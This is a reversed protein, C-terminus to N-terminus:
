QRSGPLQAAQDPVMAAHDTTRLATAIGVSEVLRTPVSHCARRDRQRGVSDGHCQSNGDLRYWLKPGDCAEASGDAHSAKGTALCRLTLETAGFIVRWV